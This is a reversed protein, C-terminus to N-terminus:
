TPIRPRSSVNMGVVMNLMPNSRMSFLSVYMQGRDWTLLIRHRSYHVLFPDLAPVLHARGAHGDLLAIRAVDGAAAGVVNRSRDAHAIRYLPIRTESCGADAQAEEYVPIAPLTRPCQNWKTTVHNTYLLRCGYNGSLANLQQVLYFLHQSKGSRHYHKLNNQNDTSPSRRHTLTPYRYPFALSDIIM